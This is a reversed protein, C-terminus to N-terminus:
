PVSAFEDEAVTDALPFYLRFRSGAGPRSQVTVAGGHAEMIHHVLVLGLGTGKTNHVLSDSARYFADFIRQQEELPIGIGRDGVEIYVGEKDSGTTLTVVKHDASYKTANDVLNILAEVIADADARVLPLTTEPHVAVEVGQKEFTLAYRDLVEHVLTNLDTPTLRYRKQGSEIRSFNLINNILSSLRDTEQSIVRYYHQRQDESPVRGLELTEIYMRILSLPTRLEHSVNSVFNSKIRALEVERRVNRYVLWAGAFLVLAMFGILGLDRNFRTKSVDEVSAGRLRIGLTYDEFLWLARQQRVVSLSLTDTAYLPAESGQTFVGLAFQGRDVDQLKPTLVDTIFTQADLVMGVLYTTEVADAVFVLAVTAATSDRQLALPELQRYGVQKRQMLQRVVEPTLAVAEAEIPQMAEGAVVRQVNYLMTDALILARITPIEQLFAQVADTDNDELVLRRELQGAWGNAVDWAHQNVSYLITEQQQDYIEQILAENESLEHVRYAVYVLAPLVVLALLILGIKRLPRM